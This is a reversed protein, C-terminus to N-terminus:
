VHSALFSFAKLVVDQFLADEKSLAIDFVHKAGPVALFETKVGFRKLKLEAMKSFRFLAFDDEDGHVFCTPPFEKEFRTVPDIREYDGDKMVEKMHTGDRIHSIMWANRPSALDPKGNAFMPPASFPVPGDYIKDLFDKPLKPIKSFGEFPKSWFVDGFIKGGYFDVIALPPNPLSGLHLSLTGGASHGMAVVRKGDTLVDHKERLLLPLDNQAWRFSEIADTLPGEFLSVQPCLRYEPLVVVFGLKVLAEIQNPPILDISGGVFGGAHYILVIPKSVRESRNSGYYVKAPIDGALADTKYIFTTSDM